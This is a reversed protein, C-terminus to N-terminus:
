DRCFALLEAESIIPIGLEKARVVKSGPSEGCVVYHVNKSVSSSVKGGHDRIWAEVESRTMTPLTGTVVFVQGVLNKGRKQYPLVHLGLTLMKQIEKRNKECQFYSFISSAMKEGIGEISVFADFPASMVTELSRFFEALVLATSSGIHPIGLATIFRELSVTKAIEISSLINNVSKQQLGPVVILDEARLSFIDSFSNILGMDFLKNIIKEGLHDIDLGNKSVFFCLKEITGAACNPNICRSSVRDISKVVKGHCVPCQTPMAWPSTNPPRKELCVGIIKPIIEGGKEVYVTDGIRLDKREIEEENYLSARSVKSGSIFVPQLKAVPTLIGTRGVQVFIDELITTKSEPAYKYALAWRYHKATAGLNEQSQLSDVKIVVGDIPMPLTNRTQEFDDIAQVVEGATYCRKPLQFIPLGWTQCQELASYHSTSTSHIVSYISLDLRRKAAERPSLLKLTGGAANRPNAFEPKRRERQAANIMAFVEYTFFVEGRVELNAPAEQPLSHPLSRITSVNATIDEGYLGDGRSLAQTLQRDEYRISVAIGDFKLEVSYVPTYGLIKEIRFFFDQLESFTYANSISLMPRSHPRVPFIGSPRDGIHASPSWAVKWDPYDLEIALLERLKMDYDYDSIIPDNLVYYRYDHDAIEQCLALYQEKSCRKM